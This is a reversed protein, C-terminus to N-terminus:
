IWLFDGRRVEGEGFGLLTLALGVFLFNCFYDMCKAEILGGLFAPVLCNVVLVDCFGCKSIFFGDVLEGFPLALVVAKFRNLECLLLGSEWLLDLFGFLHFDLLLECNGVGVAEKGLM